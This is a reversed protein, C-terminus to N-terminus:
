LNVEEVFSMKNIEKLTTEGDLFRRVASERLTHMGESRAIKKIEAASARRLIAERVTDTMELVEAIATRGIYGQGNCEM